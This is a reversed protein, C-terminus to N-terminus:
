EDIQDIGKRADEEWEQLRRELSFVCQVLSQLSLGSVKAADKYFEEAYGSLEGAERFRKYRSGPRHIIEGKKPTEDDKIIKSARLAAQVDRTRKAGIESVKDRLTAQDPQADHDTPRDIPFFRFMARRFEAEKGLRGTERVDENVLTSAYWDMYEDLKDNSMELVDNESTRLADEYKLNGVDSMSGDHEKRATCWASWDMTMASLDTPTKPHRKIGDFPFLLKTAIVILGMLKAEPIRLVRLRSLRGQGEVEYSFCTDLIKALRTVAAYVELPLALSGIWRYLILIHNIAPVQMGFSQHYASINDSVAQHLTSSKLAKQPDLTQSFNFPLKQRMSWALDRIARYYVLEGSAAWQYLDCVTTPLRLLLVGIYCYSLADVLQPMAETKARRTKSKISVDTAEGESQSSYMQSGHEAESESDYSARSQLTQLRLAWLDRVM